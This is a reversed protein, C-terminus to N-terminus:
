RIEALEEPTMVEVGTEIRDWGAPVEQGPVVPLADLVSGNIVEVHGNAAAEIEAIAARLRVDERALNLFEQGQARIARRVVEVDDALGYGHGCGRAKAVINRWEERGIYVSFSVSINMSGKQETIQKM